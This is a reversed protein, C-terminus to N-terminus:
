CRWRDINGQCFGVQSGQGILVYAPCLQPLQQSLHWCTVVGSLGGGGEGLVGSGCAGLVALLGGAARVYM